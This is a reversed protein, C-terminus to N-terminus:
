RAQALEQLERIAVAFIASNPQSSSRIESLLHQWRQMLQHRNQLWQKVLADGEEEDTGSQLVNVTIAQQHNTLDERFGDRSMSEWHSNTDIEKIQHDFWHLELNDGLAFHIQAVRELSQGTQETAQIISLLSYLNGAGAVVAALSSPVGATVLDDHKQQWRARPEGKLLDSLQKSIQLSGPRFQSVAASVDIKPRQHRLFWYTARRILRILDGMMQQQLASSVQNDLAEIEEWLQDIGFVDRAIVFAAAVDALSAGSIQCLRETFTIGMSNVMNNAVQTAIIEGRLRHDEIEQGFDNVLRQPFATLIARSLYEDQTISSVNLKEKLEGKTYSILVSLEPRTLGEGSAKRAQLVEDSPIFELERDLKGESELRNILLIYEDMSRRAHAHAVSIAQAQKYNNKLVLIGVEDTMERLLANRQKVTMDGNAVVENLLIKINVEHDSCDVGGANDIFDTNSKGGHLCFEIRGLQTFGLNGGEGLVKCRLQNGNIRLSDNAKDGVEAHTEHTAKVYTGIGGNWILDVPAKLLATLLDNPSLRDESIDFRTKMQPTIDIWKSSRSFLGGGNSILDANYDEWSSRPLAFLREREIFSSAADPTPDIFIHLHNFAACLQITESLLMGNGFVDGAMDGVAVVSFEETQTDLGLERFHLKVSEWAGRATIGMGKHDYGQSGGSAFADGLWFGREEAIENAIDSFTATGKDAAVVFYPDDEDHRVVDIPPVVAGGVLNDTIDLLASIFIQYSAIGEAMWAERDGNTPLKKAVFGGKAGVPVIVSNKVQQAKVLGLVETRYDELRDSWRLGGRAVKGGRLHVGEVRASYVFVEFMPRPLPMDNIAHPNLKFAFYDKFEGKEDQKFYSTRLTAKILELFRRLIQDENINAVKDLADIISSEIRDALASVKASGQRGPELRARFLAVLLKTVQIHRALTGAIYPQSFAFRIQKSYRAYARLMSVERWSLNAGIVLHNFEDNEANGSWINAFANHFVDKVEDLVVTESGQYILTFDHIWFVDGDSRQVAYPHEGVVQMGLNELVPIVDSLILPQGANFLKFRLIDQSQELVRYFSMTVPTSENLEEIRQIDFVASTVKFHERYASNFANRYSNQLYNGQEEGCSDMLATHLEDGWDRSVNIIETELEALNVEVPKDPDLRLVFQVRALISESFTTTFEAESSVCAKSLIEQVQVRLATNFIDRPVYYLFTAFQNCRDQRYLLRIRRRDHLSFVGMSLALLEEESSLILEDRPLDNMIQMLEKGNHSRRDFGSRKLVNKAKRHMVPIIAISESYVPSTYLGFFRCKGIVNGQEDFRKIIIRDMYAPRHVRSYHADKAFMIISPELLFAQEAARLEDFARENPEGSQKIKLIGLESDPICGVTGNEISIEDYGLFTFRDNLMWKLFAKADEEQDGKQSSLEDLLAHARTQMKPFDDVVIHVQDLVQQLSALIAKLETADSTRDVELYILAEAHATKDTSNSLKVLKDGDRQTFIIENHITHIVLGRRNLEMRVSDVLFPMDSQLIEIVTHQARWGHQELDPNHVHVKPQEANFSQLFQWCSLTAGYLNDLSRESLEEKTTAQYYQQAFNSVADISDAPLKSNLLDILPALLPNNNSALESM